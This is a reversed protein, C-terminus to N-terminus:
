HGPSINICFLNLESVIIAIMKKVIHPIKNWAVKENLSIDNDITFDSRQGRITMMKKKM